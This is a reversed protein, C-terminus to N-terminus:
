EVPDSCTRITREGEAKQRFSLALLECKELSNVWQTVTSKKGKQLILTNNLHKSIFPKKKCVKYQVIKKKEAVFAEVPM